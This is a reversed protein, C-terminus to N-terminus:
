PARSLNLLRARLEWQVPQGSGSASFDLPFISGTFFVPIEHVFGDRTEPLEAFANQILANSTLDSASRSVEIVLLGANRRNEIYTCVPSFTISGAEYRDETGWKSATFAIVRLPCDEGFRLVSPSRFLGGEGLLIQRLITTARDHLEIARPTDAQGPRVQKALEIAEKYNTDTWNIVEPERPQIYGCAVCAFVFSALSLRLRGM